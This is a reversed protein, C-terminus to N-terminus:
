VYIIRTKAQNIEEDAAPPADFVDGASEDEDDVAEFRNWPQCLVFM